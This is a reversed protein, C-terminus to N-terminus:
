GMGDPGSRVRRTIILLILNLNGIQLLWQVSTSNFALCKGKEGALPILVVGVLVKANPIFISRGRILMDREKERGRYKYYRLEM